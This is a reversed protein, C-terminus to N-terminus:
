RETAELASLIEKSRELRQEAAKVTFRMGLWYNALAMSLNPDDLHRWSETTQSKWPLPGIDAGVHDTAVLWDMRTGMTTLAEGLAGFSGGFSDEQQKLDEVESPWATLMAILTPEAIQSLRGSQILSQVTGLPPDFSAGSVMMVSLHRDVRSADAPTLADEEAMFILQEAAHLGGAHNAYVREAEAVTAAFDSRLLELLVKADSRERSLEWQADIGFALLISAVIVCGERLWVPLSLKSIRM